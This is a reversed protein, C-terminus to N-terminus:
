LDIGFAEKFRNMYDVYSPLKFTDGHIWPKLAMVLADVTLDFRTIIGHTMYGIYGLNEKISIGGRYDSSVEALEVGMSVKDAEFEYLEFGESVGLGIKAMPDIVIAVQQVIYGTPSPYPLIGSEVGSTFCDECLERTKVARGLAGAITEILGVPQPPIKTEVNVGQVDTIGIKRFAVRAARVKMSNGTGILAKNTIGM